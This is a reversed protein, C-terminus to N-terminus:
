SPQGDRDDARALEPMTEASPAARPYPLTSRLAVGSLDGLAALAQELADMSAFRAEPDKELARAVIADLAEVPAYPSLSSCPVPVEHMQATLVAAVNDDGFPPRGTLAYFLTAGLAYVDSRADVARGMAQEPPMYAPTGVTIGERTLTAGRAGDLLKAIGFDLVKVVDTEGGLTAVFLNEPKVDRHVLGKGHAEGIARAAQRVLHVARAPPLPGAATVLDSLTDGELLEMAYYYLGDDTVGADFVRVTNPHELETMAAIEREFRSLGAASAVDAKLIKVAVHKKLAPHYARWVEGMGGEGLRRDLKYRGVLRAEHLRQKLSWMADGGVALLGATAVTLVVQFGLMALASGEHMQTQVAPVFLSGVLLAAPYGLATLAMGVLGRRLPLPRALAQVCLVASVGHGAPSELGRWLVAYWGLAFAAGLYTIRCLVDFVRESPAPARRLRLWVGLVVLGYTLRISLLWALPAQGSAGVFLDSIGGVVWFFFGAGVISRTRAIAERLEVEAM